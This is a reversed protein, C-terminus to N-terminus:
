FTFEYGLIFNIGLTNYAYTNEDPAASTTYDQRDLLNNVHLFIKQNKEPAYSLDLDTFLAPKVKTAGNDTKNARVGIYNAMLAASFKEDHYNAGATFQLKNDYKIWKGDDSSSFSRSKPNGYTVGWMTDFNDNHKIGLSLEVGTNKVDTNNYKVDGTAASGSEIEISDDINYKFLALRWSRKNENLKYGIEYHKGQEPKLDFTPLIVSGGFLKTLEPLRFSKGAKAYLSSDQTLKRIYQIEPTFKSQNVQESHKTTGASLDKNDGKCNRVFTERANFILNDKESIGWDYSVYISYINREYAGQGAPKAPRSGMKKTASNYVDLDERKFDAGVLIKDKKNVDFEKQIDFNYNHGKRWSYKITESIVGTNKYTTQDYSREQTNYSFHSKLGKKDDYQLIFINNHDEYENKQQHSKYTNDEIAMANRSEVYSHTFKLNDTINYNWLIGKDEGKLYDYHRQTTKGMATNNKTTTMNSFKGRNELHATMNFKDAGLNVSYREKGYNGASIKISNKVYNKTIINIVGGTAESGYLM